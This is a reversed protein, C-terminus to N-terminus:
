CRAILQDLVSLDHASTVRTSTIRYHVSGHPANLFVDDGVRVDQLQRFFTDRHGAIALNGREGPLATHEIHGPGRRLTQPDSGPLVVSSLRVRPILLEGIPSGRVVCTTPAPMPEDEALLGPRTPLALRTAVELSQRAAEQSIRADIVLVASWALMAVGAVVLVAAIGRRLHGASRGITRHHAQMTARERGCRSDADTRGDRRRRASCPVFRGTAEAPAFGRHLRGQDRARDACVRGDGRRYGTAHLRTWGDRALTKLLRPRAPHDNPDFVTVSYIPAGAKRAREVVDDVTRVSANDGGDSVVILARRDHSGNQVHALGRDIGDHLATM